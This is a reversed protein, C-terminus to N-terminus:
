STGGTFDTACSFPTTPPTNSPNGQHLQINGGGLTHNVDSETTYVASGSAPTVLRIMFTDNVGPEGNDAVRIRYFVDGFLNTRATGCIDRSGIPQGTKPDNSDVTGPTLEYGTVGTGHVNLGIGHDIYELHGWFAGNKVGGGVGFNAKAATGSRTIFGGGTLFDPPIQPNAGVHTRPVTLIGGVLLCAIIMSIVNRLM